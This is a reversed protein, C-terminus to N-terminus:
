SSWSNTFLICIHNLMVRNVTCTRSAYLSFPSGWGEDPLSACVSLPDHILFLSAGTTYVFYNCFTVECFSWRPARITMLWLNFRLLVYPWMVRRSVHIVCRTCHCRGSNKSCESCKHEKLEVNFSLHCSCHRKTNTEAWLSGTKNKQYCELRSFLRPKNCHFSCCVSFTSGRNVSRSPTIIWAADVLSKQEIKVNMAPQHMHM